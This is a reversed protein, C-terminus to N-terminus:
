GRRAAKRAIRAQRGSIGKNRRERRAANVVETSGDERRVIVSRRGWRQGPHSSRWTIPPQPGVDVGAAAVMAMAALLPSRGLVGSM